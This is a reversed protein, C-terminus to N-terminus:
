LNSCTTITISKTELVPPHLVHVCESYLSAACAIMIGGNSLDQTSTTIRDLRFFQCSEKALLLNGDIQQHPKLFTETFCMVNTHGLSLDCKVDDQKPIYSRM